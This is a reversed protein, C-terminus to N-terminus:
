MKRGARLFESKLIANVCYVRASANYLM